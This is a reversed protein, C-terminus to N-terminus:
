NGNFDNLVGKDVTQGLASKLEMTFNSKEFTNFSINVNGDTPNPYVSLEPTSCGLRVVKFNLNSKM